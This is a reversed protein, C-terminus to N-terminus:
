SAAPASLFQDIAQLHAPTLGHRPDPAILLSSTHARMWAMVEPEIALDDDTWVLRRRPNDGALRRVVDFKWWRGTLPDEADAGAVVAHTGSAEGAAVSQPSPRVRRPPAGAVPLLPMGLLTALEDNADSAWTTLWTIEVRGCARCSCLAEVVAPAWQIPWARTRYDTRAVGRRWQTWVEYDPQLAVANLVGDVDLLWLPVADSPAEQNDTM